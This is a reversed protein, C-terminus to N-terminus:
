KRKRAIKNLKSVWTKSIFRRKPPKPAARKSTRKRRLAVSLETDRRKVKMQRRKLHNEKDKLTQRLEKIRNPIFTTKIEDKADQWAKHLVKINKLTDEVDQDARKLQREAVKKREIADEVYGESLYM